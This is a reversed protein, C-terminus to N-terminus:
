ARRAEQVFRRILEPDKRGPASELRSSADVGWAGTQRIAGAVTDPGLGGALVFPREHTPLLSYDFSAGTGGWRDPSVSDLLIIQDPPIDEVQVPGSVPIPRLVLLGVEMAAASSERAHAGYPQVGDAGTALAAAVLDQPLLDRTLIIKLTEVQRGLEVVQDLTIARPSEPVLVFGVADAGAEVATEVDERRTLGCVKVWTM